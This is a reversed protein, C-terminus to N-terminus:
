LCIKRKRKSAFVEVGAIANTAQWIDTVSSSRNSDVFELQVLTIHRTLVNWIHLKCCSWECVSHSQSEVIHINM